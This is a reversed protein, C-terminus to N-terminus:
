QGLFPASLGVYRTSIRGHGNPSCHGNNCLESFLHVRSVGDVQKALKETMIAETDVVDLHTLYVLVERMNKYLVITDIEKLHERVIEGEDNEVVLVEEPKVMRGIIILRLNSLIEAYLNKRLGISSSQGGLSLNLMGAM